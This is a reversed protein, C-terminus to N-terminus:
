SQLALNISSTFEPTKSLKLYNRTEYLELIDKVGVRISDLKSIRDIDMWKHESLKYSSLKGKFLNMELNLEYIALKVDVVKIYFIPKLDKNLFNNNFNNKSLIGACALDNSVEQQLVRLISDINTENEKSFTMPISYDGTKKGYRSNTLTEKGLLIKDNHKLIVATAHRRIAQQEVYQYVRHLTSLSTQFTPPMNKYVVELPKGPELAKEKFFHLTEPLSVHRGASTILGKKVVLRHFNAASIPLNEPHKKLAEEVSGYKLYTDLFWEDSYKKYKEGLERSKKM